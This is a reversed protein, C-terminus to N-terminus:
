VSARWRDALTLVAGPVAFRKQIVVGFANDILGRGLGYKMLAEVRPAMEIPMLAPGRGVDDLYACICASETIALGGETVLVPVKSLPNVALLEPPSAWPDVWALEVQETLCKEHIVVQVLRAYPSARNLYLKMM